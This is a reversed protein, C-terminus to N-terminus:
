SVLAGPVLDKIFGNTGTHAFVVELAGTMSLLVKVRIFAYTLAWSFCCFGTSAILDQVWLRTLAHARLRCLAVSKLFEILFRALTLAPLHNNRYCRSPPTRDASLIFGWITVRTWVAAIASALPWVWVWATISALLMVIAASGLPRVWALMIWTIRRRSPTSSLLSPWDYCSLTWPPQLGVVACTAAKEAATMILELSVIVWFLQFSM